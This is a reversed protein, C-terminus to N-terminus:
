SIPGTLVKERADKAAPRLRCEHLEQYYPLHYDYYSKLTVDNEVTRVYNKRIQRFGTSTAADRHWRRWTDWSELHGANWSLSRELYPIGVARCFAQIVGDPDSLLEDADIVPPVEGTLDCVRKFIGHLHWYGIEGVTVEQNMAFHSAITLAPDRIIFTNKLKGLFQRDSILKDYCHYSIDKFYVDFSEALSQIYDTTGRYEKPYTMEDSLHPGTKGQESYYYQFSFPEHLVVFDGRERVMREFATSLSRPHAWTAIIQKM